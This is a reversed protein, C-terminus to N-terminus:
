NIETWHRGDALVVVEFGMEAAQSLTAYTLTKTNALRALREAQENAPYAKTAGYIDRLKVEIRQNM